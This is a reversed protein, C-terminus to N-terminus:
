KPSSIKPYIINAMICKINTEFYEVNTVKSVKHTLIYYTRTTFISKINMRIWEMNTVACYSNERSMRIVVTEINTM